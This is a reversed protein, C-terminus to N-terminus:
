GAEIDADIEYYPSEIARNRISVVTELIELVGPDWLGSESKMAEIAGDSIGSSDSGSAPGPSVLHDYRDCAGIIRSAMPISNGSLGDPFGSGDMLEHHSAVAEAVSQLFGTRKLLSAGSAPHGDASVAKGTKLDAEAPGNGCNASAVIKGIDHVLSALALDRLLQECLGMARGVSVALSCVRESHSKGAQLDRDIRPGPATQGEGIRRQTPVSKEFGRVLEEAFAEFGARVRLFAASPGVIPEGDGYKDFLDNLAERVISSETRGFRKALKSLRALSSLPYYVPKLIMPRRTYIGTRGSSESLVTSLAEEAQTMMRGTASHANKGSTERGSISGIGASFSSKANARLSEVAVFAEEPRFGPFVLFIRHSDITFAAGGCRSLVDHVARCPPSISGSTGPAPGSPAFHPPITFFEALPEITEILAASFRGPRNEFLFALARSLVGGPFFGTAPDRRSEIIGSFLGSTGACTEVVM